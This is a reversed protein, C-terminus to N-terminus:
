EMLGAAEMFDQQAAMYSDLMQALRNMEDEDRVDEGLVDLLAEFADDDDYEGEGMLGEDDIVDIERMYAMDAEIARRVFDELEQQPNKHGARRMAKAIFPVAAELDYGQMIM